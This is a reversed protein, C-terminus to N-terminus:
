KSDINVHLRGFLEALSQGSIRNESAYRDLKSKSITPALFDMGLSNVLENAQAPKMKKLANRVATVIPSTAKPGQM